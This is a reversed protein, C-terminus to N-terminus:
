TNRVKTLASRGRYILIKKCIGVHTSAETYPNTPCCGLGPLFCCEVLFYSPPEMRKCLDFTIVAARCDPFRPLYVKQLWLSALGSSYTLRSHPRGQFFLM